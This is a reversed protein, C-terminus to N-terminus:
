AYLYKGWREDEELGLRRIIHKSTNITQRRPKHLLRMDTESLLRDGKRHNCVKCCTVINDWTFPGGRSKPIVHDLTLDRAEFRDGCYQCRYRDRLLFNKKSLKVGYTPVRRYEVLRIVSPLLIGPYIECGDADLEMVAIKKILKKLAGRANTFSVPEYTANIVLVSKHNLDM